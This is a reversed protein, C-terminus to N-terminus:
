KHIWINLPIYMLPIQLTKGKTRNMELYINQIIKYYKLHPGLACKQKGEGGKEKCLNIFYYWTFITSFGLHFLTHHFQLKRSLSTNYRHPTYHDWTIRSEWATLASNQRVPIVFPLSLTKSKPKPLNSYHWTPYLPLKRRLRVAKIKSSHHGGEPILAEHWVMRNIENAKTANCKKRRGLM